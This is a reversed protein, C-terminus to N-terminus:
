LAVKDTSISSFRPKHCAHWTAPHRREREGMWAVLKLPPEGEHLYHISLTVPWQLVICTTSKWMLPSFLIFNILTWVSCYPPTTDVFFKGSCNLLFFLKILLEGPKGTWKWLSSDRFMSYYISYPIIEPITIEGLWFHKASILPQYMQRLPISQPRM